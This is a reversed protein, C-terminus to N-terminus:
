RSGMVDRVALAITDDEQLEEELTEWEVDMANPLNYNDHDDLDFNGGGLDLLV